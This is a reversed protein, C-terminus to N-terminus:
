KQPPQAQHLAVAGAVAATGSLAQLLADVVPSFSILNFKGLLAYAVAQVVGIYAFPIKFM